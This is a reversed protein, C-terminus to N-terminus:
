RALVPQRSRLSLTEEQEAIQALKPVDLILAISGDGLITAGSIGEAKKYFAGLKKITTQHGGVVQDVAIGIRRQEQRVIVVQEIAPAEGNIAFQERLRIYPVYEGRVTILRKAGSRETRRRDLEVCEEVLGLPFIYHEGGSITLFGDIIALTLPLKLLFTTGAGQESTLEITGGLDDISRKVVDLGVGRGSVSTVEKATSFGPAFLCAYVEGTTYSTGPFLIGQSIARALIRERDLGVGDDSIRILVQAGAHAAALRVTGRPCKGTHARVDPPEIGHDMSNRILHVLPDQLREIVTKDLETDTGEVELAVDKGLEGSLDRVLRQFRNFLSGIPLMRINMTVDRLGATMREVEESISVFEALGQRASAQSLRAQITVLEGVLNALIDLKDTAVRISSLSGTGRYPERVPTPRCMPEPTEKGASLLGQLSALVQRCLTEDSTGGEYHADLMDKIRDRASLALTIMERNAAAEGKRLRDFFNELEHTFAAVDDLGCAGGSGKLTHLARFVRGLLDADQPTEELALLARELEGLLEYAEERFMERLQLIMTGWSDEVSPTDNTM